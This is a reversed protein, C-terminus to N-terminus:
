ADGVKLSIEYSEADSGVYIRAEEGTLTTLIMDTRERLATQLEARRSTMLHDTVLDRVIIGVTQGRQRALVQLERKEESSIRVEIKESKKAKRGPM